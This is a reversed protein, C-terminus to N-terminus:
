CALKLLYRQLVIRPSIQCGFEQKKVRNIIKTFFYIFLLDKLNFNLKFKNWSEADFLNM